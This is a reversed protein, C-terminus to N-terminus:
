RRERNSRVLRVIQALVYMVVFVVAGVTVYGTVVNLFSQHIM